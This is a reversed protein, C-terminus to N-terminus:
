SREGCLCSKRPAFTRRIQRAKTTCGLRIHAPFTGRKRQLMATLKTVLMDLHKFLANCNQMDFVNRLKALSVVHSHTMTACVTKIAFYLFTERLNWRVDGNLFSQLEPLYVSVHYHEDKSLQLVCPINPYQRLKTLCDKPSLLVRESTLFGRFLVM